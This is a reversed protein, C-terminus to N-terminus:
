KNVVVITIGTAAILVTIIGVAWPQWNSKESAKSSEKAVKPVEVPEAKVQATFTMGIIIFFAAIKKM